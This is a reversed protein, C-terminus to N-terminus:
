RDRDFQALLERGVDYALYFTRRADPGAATAELMGGFERLSPGDDNGHVGIVFAYFREWDLSHPLEWNVNEVFLQWDHGARETIAM